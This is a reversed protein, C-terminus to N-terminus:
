LSPGLICIPCSGGPQGLPVRIEGCQCVVGRKHTTKPHLATLEPDASTHDMGEQLECREPTHPSSINGGGTRM